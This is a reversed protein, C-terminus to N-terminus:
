VLKAFRPAGQSVSKAHKGKVRQSRFLATSPAIRFFSMSVAVDELAITDAHHMRPSEAPQLVLRLNKGAAARVMKAVPEGVGNFDCLNGAGNGGRQLQIYIQHLRQGQHM